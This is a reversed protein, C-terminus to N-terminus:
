KTSPMMPTGVADLLTGKPLPTPQKPVQVMARPRKREFKGGKFYAFIEPEGLRSLLKTVFKQIDRLQYLQEERRKKFAAEQREIPEHIFRRKMEEVTHNKHWNWAAQVFDHLRWDWPLFPGPLDRGRPDYQGFVKGCWVLDIQNPIKGTYGPPTSCAFPEHQYHPTAIYRGLAHRVFVETRPAGEDAPSLFSERVTMPIMDPDFIRIASTIAPDKYPDGGAVEYTIGLWRWGRVTNFSDRIPIRIEDKLARRAEPPLVPQRSMWAPLKSNFWSALGM